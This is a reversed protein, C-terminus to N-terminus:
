ALAMERELITVALGAAFAEVLAALERPQEMAMNMVLAPVEQLRQADGARDVWDRRAEEPIPIPSAPCGAVLVQGLIREPALVSLYQAFRGSMGFGVVM